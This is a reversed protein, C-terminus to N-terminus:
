DLLGMERRVQARIRDRTEIEDLARMEEELRIRELDEESLQSQASRTQQQRALLAKRKAEVAKRLAENEASRKALASVYENPQIDDSEPMASDAPSVSEWAPKLVQLVWAAPKLGADRAAAMNTFLHMALDSFGSGDPKICREPIVQQLSSAWRNRITSEDVGCVEAIVAASYDGASRDRHQLHEIVELQLKKIDPPTYPVQGSTGGEDDAHTKCFGSSRRTRAAKRSKNMNM